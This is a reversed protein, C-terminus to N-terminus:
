RIFDRIPYIGLEPFRRYSKEWTCKVRHPVQFREKRSLFHLVICDSIVIHVNVFLRCNICQLFACLGMMNVGSRHFDYSNQIVILAGRKLARRPAHCRLKWGPFGSTSAAAPAGGRPRRGNMVVPPIPADAGMMSDVRAIQYPFTM